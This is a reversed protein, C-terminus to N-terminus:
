VEIPIGDPGTIKNINVHKLAEKVENQKIRKYWSLNRVIAPLNHFM